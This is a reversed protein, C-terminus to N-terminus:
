FDAAFNSIKELIHLYFYCKKISFIWNSAKHAM